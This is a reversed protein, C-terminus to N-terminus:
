MSFYGDSIHHVFAPGGAQQVDVSEFDPRPFMNHNLCFVSFSVAMKTYRCQILQVTLLNPSIALCNNIDLTSTLIRPLM